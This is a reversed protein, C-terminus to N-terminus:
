KESKMWEEPGFYGFRKPSGYQPVQRKNRGRTIFIVTPNSIKRKMPTKNNEEKVTAKNSHHKYSRSYEFGQNVSADKKKEM